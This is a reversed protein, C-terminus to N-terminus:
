NLMSSHKYHPEKLGSLPTRSIYFIQRVLKDRLKLDLGEILEAAQAPGDSPKYIKIIFYRFM